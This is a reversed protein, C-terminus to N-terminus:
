RYKNIEDRLKRAEEKPNESFIIARSSNLIIGKKESNLGATVSAGLDGAQAGLGPSLFTMDGAIERARKMEEPYTAGIMLLCNKNYNWENVVKEAVVEWVKKGDVLLDQIEASGSNSSKVLIIVGKDARSLFPTIAEQGFYPYVTVADFGYWDYLCKVYGNNTNGIDGRKSDCVLYADPHKEKLYEMTMKLEQYGKTGEAEYFAINPKFAAAYEVTEEIIWKNFEFQPNDMKRFKEPIKNMDSDLGVCVLSNIKDVRKDFKEVISM